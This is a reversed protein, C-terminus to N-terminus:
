RHARFTYIPEVDLSASRHVFLTNMLAVCWGLRRHWSSTNLVLNLIYFQVCLDTLMQNASILEAGLFLCMVHGASSHHSM